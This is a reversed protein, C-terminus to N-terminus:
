GAVLKLDAALAEGDVGAPCRGNTLWDDCTAVYGEDSYEGLAPVTVPILGGWSVVGYLQPSVLRLHTAHYGWSAPKWKGSTSPGTTWEDAGQWATPLAWGTWVGGFLYAAAAVLDPRRMDVTAFSKITRGMIPMTLWQFAVRLMNAGNDTSPDDRRFGTFRTYADLADAETGVQEVGNQGTWTGIQHCASALPCCGYKDNGDMGYVFPVGDRMSWDFAAPISPLTSLNLYNEIKPMAALKAHDPPLKGLKYIDM